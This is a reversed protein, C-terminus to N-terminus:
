SDMFSLLSQEDTLETFYDTFVKHKRAFNSIEFWYAQQPQAIGHKDKKGQGTIVGEQILQSVNDRSTIYFRFGSYELGTLLLYDFHHSMEIHQWKWGAGNSGYRASKQEFTKGVKRHDHTSDTRPDMRFHEKCLRECWKEGFTKGPLRVYQLIEEPSGQERYHDEQTKPQSFQQHSTLSSLTELTLAVKVTTPATNM